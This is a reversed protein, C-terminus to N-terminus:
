RFFTILTSCVCLHSSSVKRWILLVHFFTIFYFLVDFIFNLTFPSRWEKFSPFLSLQHISSLLWSFPVARKRGVTGLDTKLDTPLSLKRGPGKVSVFCFLVFFPYNIWKFFVLVFSAFTLFIFLDARILIMNHHFLSVDAVCASTYMVCWEVTM